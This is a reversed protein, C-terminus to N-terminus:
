PKYQISKLTQGTRDYEQRLVKTFEEPTQGGSSPEMALAQLRERVAGSALAKVLEARLQQRITMPVDPTSWIGTGMTQTLDSYGLEALTPVDPLLASRTASTVALARLKGTKVLPVSTGMGDFMFQVQGGMLDQLAPPSGKYGVHQMDLGAVRNFQEGKLHSLTGASYSAFSTKGPNSKVYGVMDAVNRIPLRPDVVLVLPVRALEVLASLDQFVDYRLPLSHPVETVLSNPALVFVHGDRPSNLMTEVALIGGAGPKNEVVVPQVLSKQMVDALSRAIVDTAGGAPAPVVLKIPRSPWATQALAGTATLCLTLAALCGRRTLSSSTFINM